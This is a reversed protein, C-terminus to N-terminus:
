RCALDQVFAGSALEAANWQNMALWAAWDRRQAVTPEYPENVFRLDHSMPTVACPVTAFAPTGALIAEVAGASSWTVVAHCNRLDEALPVAVQRLDAPKARIRIPRSTQRRLAATTAATWDAASSGRLAYWAPSQLLLLLHGDTTEARWPAIKIGHQAFRAHDLVGPSTWSPEMQALQEAGRCIRWWQGRAGLYPNDVYHWPRGAQRCGQILPATDAKMGYFWPTEDPAVPRGAGEQLRSAHGLAAFGQLMLAGVRRGNAAGAPVVVVHKM